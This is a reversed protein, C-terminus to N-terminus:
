LGNGVRSMWLWQRANQESVIWVQKLLKPRDNDPYLIQNSEIRVGVNAALTKVARVRHNWPQFWGSTPLRKYLCKMNPILIKINFYEEM